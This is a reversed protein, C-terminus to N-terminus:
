ARQPKTVAKVAWMAADEAHTIALARLRQIEGMRERGTDTNEDSLERTEEDVADIADAFLRKIREVAPHGGPNFNIGVKYEGITQKRGQAQESM